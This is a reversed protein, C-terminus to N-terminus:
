SGSCSSDTVLNRSHGDSSVLLPYFDEAPVPRGFLWGQGMVPCESDAFYAAQETTEIGEVIVHLNLAKAIGMIQPLIGVTVSETGIAQTFAKDIKITDIALDKLYALSSYGTGFDDIQVSHGLEHLQRIAERTGQDSATSRETVEIALSRAEVGAKHMSRKLGPIFSADSLDFATVNINIRFDPNESLTPGFEALVHRLVLRTLEGVFGREEALAVFVEPNVAFGDVDTWRVLAEAEVLRGTALNMIPQYFVRLKNARIARRLQQDMNRNRFYVLAGFFGLLGCGSGGLGVFLVVLELNHRLVVPIEAYATQCLGLAWECRTAYLATGIRGQADHDNVGAAARAAVGSLLGIKGTKVDKLTSIRDPNIEDMRQNLAPDYLTYADGIQQGFIHQDDYSDGGRYPFLDKYISAGNNLSYQPIFRQHPLNRRGMMASCELTGNSMHGLDRTYRTNFLMTHLFPMEDDSCPPYPAANLRALLEDAEKTYASMMARLRDAEDDIRMQTQYLVVACGLLYGGLAGLVATLTTAILSIFIRQKLKSMWSVGVFLPQRM